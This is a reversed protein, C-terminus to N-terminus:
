GRARAEVKTSTPTACKGSACASTGETTANCGTSSCIGTTGKLVKGGTLSHFAARYAEKESPKNTAVFKHVLDASKRGLERTERRQSDGYPDDLPKNAAKQEASGAKFIPNNKGKPLEAARSVKAGESEVADLQTDSPRITQTGKGLSNSVYKPAGHTRVNTTFGDRANQKHQPSNDDKPASLGILKAESKGAIARAEKSGPRAVTVKKTPGKAEAKARPFSIPPTPKKAM